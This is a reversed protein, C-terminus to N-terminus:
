RFLRLIKHIEETTILHLSGRLYIHKMKNRYRHFSDVNADNLLFLSNSAFHFYLVSCDIEFPQADRFELYVWRAIMKVAGLLITKSFAKRSLIQVAQTIDEILYFIRHPTPNEIMTTNSPYTESNVIYERHCM